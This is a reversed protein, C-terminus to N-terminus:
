RAPYTKQGNTVWEDGDHFRAYGMEVVKDRFAMVVPGVSRGREAVL